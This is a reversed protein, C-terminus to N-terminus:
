KAAMTFEAFVADAQLQNPKWNTAPSFLRLYASRDTSPSVPIQRGNCRRPLPLTQQSPLGRETLRVPKRPSSSSRMLLAPLDKSFAAQRQAWLRGGHRRPLDYTRFTAKPTSLGRFEAAQARNFRTKILVETHVRDQWYFHTANPTLSAPNTPRHANSQTFSM